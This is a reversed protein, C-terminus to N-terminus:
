KKARQGHSFEFEIKRNKYLLKADFKKGAKSVFGKIMATKGTKLLSDAMKKTISKGCISKGVNFCGETGCTFSFKQEIVPKNCVPCIGIAEREIMNTTDEQLNAIYERLQQIIEHLFEEKTYNGEGIRSLKEEIERTLEPSKLSEPVVSIYKRGFPTSQYSGKELVISQRKPNQLKKIIEAMTASTGIQYKQMLTIISDITYRPPPTTKKSVLNIETIELLDGKKLMPIQQQSEDEKKEGDEIRLLEKYGANKVSIGSSKFRMEKIETILTTSAYEYPPYFIALFRYVIAEYVNKEEETMNQYETEAKDNITPIIAHHDTVKTDNFYSKDAKIGSTDIKEVAKQFKGYNCSHIHDAIENYLDMSLCRSDTRPYSVIKYKEYLKQTLELTKDPTYKYRRGMDKQLEALSYLLPAKKKKEEKEYAIVKAKEGKCFSATKEAEDKEWFFRPKEEESLCMGSFGPQYEAKLQYFPTSVFNDIEMDRQVILNLLPTQCRGYSLTIDRSKTLTLARSYNMGMMYDAEARAEAEQLLNHFTSDEEKLNSFAKRLAEDTLSSAWLIKVPKTNGAYRYIWSQILYGERGADGANILYSVDPRHILGKIIEFQEKTDPLVKLSDSIDFILPLNELKWEKLEPKHEEPMKLGILHGVAWTVIYKDSEFYGNKRIHCGLVKAMDAGASPKEAIVLVKGM